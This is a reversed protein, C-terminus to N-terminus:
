VGRVAVDRHVGAITPGIGAHCSLIVRRAVHANPQIHFVGERVDNLTVSQDALIIQIDHHLLMHDYLTSCLVAKLWNTRTRDGQERYHRKNELIAPPAQSILTGLSSLSMTTGRDWGKGELWKKLDELQLETLQQILAKQAGNMNLRLPLALSFQLSKMLSHTSETINQSAARSVPHWDIPTHAGSTTQGYLQHTQQDKKETHIMWESVSSAASLFRSQSRQLLHFDLMADHTSSARVCMGDRTNELLRHCFGYWLQDQYYEWALSVYAISDTIFHVTHGLRLADDIGTWM